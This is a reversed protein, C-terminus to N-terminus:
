WPVWVFSVPQVVLYRYFPLCTCFPTLLYNTYEILPGRTHYKAKAEEKADKM